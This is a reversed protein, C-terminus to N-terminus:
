SYEELCHKQEIGCIKISWYITYEHENLEFCTRIERTFGEKIWPKTLPTKM